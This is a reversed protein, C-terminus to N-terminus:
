DPSLQLRHWWDKTQLDLVAKRANKEKARCHLLQLKYNITILVNNEDILQDPTYRIQLSYHYQKICVHIANYDLM